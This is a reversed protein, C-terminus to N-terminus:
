NCNTGCIAAARVKVACCQVQIVVLHNYGVSLNTTDSHSSISSSCDDCFSLQQAFRM